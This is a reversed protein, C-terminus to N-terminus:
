REPERAAPVLILISRGDGSRYVMTGRVVARQGADLTLREDGDLTGIDVQGEDVRIRTEGREADLRLRTGRVVVWAGPTRLRLERGERRPRVDADLGGEALFAEDHRGGRFVARSGHDLRIESGDRLRVAAHGTLGTHLGAGARLPDGARAPAGSDAHITAGEAALVRAVATM